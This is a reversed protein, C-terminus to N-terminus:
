QLVEQADNLRYPCFTCTETRQSLVDVRRCWRSAEDEVDKCGNGLKLALADGLSGFLPKDSGALSPTDSAPRRGERPFAAQFYYTHAVLLATANCLQCTQKLYTWVGDPPSSFVYTQRTAGM